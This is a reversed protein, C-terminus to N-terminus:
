GDIGHPPEGSCWIRWVERLVDSFSKVHEAVEVQRSSILSRMSRRTQSLYDVQSALFVAKDIYEEISYAIFETLGYQTLIPVGHRCALTEGALTLTPVGMWLAHNTTTGGNYPFTDLLVDVEHHLPM